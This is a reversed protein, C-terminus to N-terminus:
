RVPVKESVETNVVLQRGGTIELAEEMTVKESPVLIIFQDPRLNEWYLQLDDCAADNLQLSKVEPADRWAQLHHAHRGCLHICGGRASCGFLERDWGLFHEEYMRSSILQTTCGYLLTYGKPMMRHHFGHAYLPGDPAVGLFRRRMELITESIEAIVREALEPEQALTALFEERFIDVGAVLPESVYPLEVPIRGETAEVVFRLLKLMEQFVPNEDLDPPRFEEMRVGLQSLPTWWVPGEEKRFVPCGMVASAFHLDFRGLSLAFPRWNVPDKYRDANERFHRLKEELWVERDYPGVHPLGQVDSAYTPVYSPQEARCLQLFAEEHECQTETLEDTLFSLDYRKAM